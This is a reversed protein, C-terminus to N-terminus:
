PKKSKLLRFIQALDEESNIVQLKPEERLLHWKSLFFPDKCHERAERGLRGAYIQEMDSRGLDVTSIGASKLVLYTFEAMRNVYENDLLKSEILPHEGQYFQDFLDFLRERLYKESRKTQGRRGGDASYRKELMRLSSRAQVLYRHLMLFPDRAEWKSLPHLMQACWLEIKSLKTQPPYPLGFKRFSRRELEMVIRTEPSLRKIDEVVEEPLLALKENLIKISKLVDAIRAAKEAGRMALDTTKKRQPFYALEDTIKKLLTQVQVEAISDYQLLEVIQQAMKSFTKSDM